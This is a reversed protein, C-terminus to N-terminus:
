PVAAAAAHRPPSVARVASSVMAHYATKPDGHLAFPRLEIEYEGGDGPACSIVNMWVGLDRELHLTIKVLCNENLPSRGVVRLGQWDVARASFRIPGERRECTVQFDVSAVGDTRKPPPVVWSVVSQPKPREPEGFSAAMELIAPLATAIRACENSALGRVRHLDDESLGVARDALAVIQDALAVIQVLRRNGDDTLAGGHHGRIADVIPGPLRWERAARLGAEVHFKDVLELWKEEPLLAPESGKQDLAALLVVKGFDHLLGALFATEPTLGRLQALEQALNASLLAERWVRHRLSVLPGPMTAASGLSGAIACRITEKAGIQTIARDLSLIPAPPGQRASNAYRLVAATLAQDAQVVRALEHVSWDSQGLIKTLRALVAPYAPIKLNARGSMEVLRQEVAVDRSPVMM